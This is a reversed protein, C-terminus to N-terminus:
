ASAGKVLPLPSPLTRRREDSSAGLFFEVPQGTASAIRELELVDPVREGAELRWYTRKSVGVERALEAV